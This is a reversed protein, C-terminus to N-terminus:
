DKKKGIDEFPSRRRLMLGKRQGGNVTFRRHNTRVREEKGKEKPQWLKGKRGTGGGKRQIRSGEYMSGKMLFDEIKKKKKRKIKKKKLKEGDAALQPDTKQPQLRRERSGEERKSANKSKCAAPVPFTTERGREGRKKQQSKGL